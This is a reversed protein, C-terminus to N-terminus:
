GGSFTLEVKATAKASVTVKQQQTGHIEHWAEVVYDGPPVGSFSFAGDAGTVKFHPHAVVGVWAVMWPHVDCKTKFAVETEDFTREIRMGRSPMAVNFSTNHEPRGNVNHNFTDSNVFVLKQGVQVGVVYPDYMCGKQDIVVEGAPADFAYPELGEKVYVFSNALKGETVAVQRLEVAEPHAKKCEPLTIDISLPAKPTGTFLIVGEITAATAADIAKKTAASGTSAPKNDKKGGDCAAGIAAAALLLGCGALADLM